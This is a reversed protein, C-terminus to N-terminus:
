DTGLTISVTDQIMVQHPPHQTRLECWAHRRLSNTCHLPDRHIGVCQPPQWDESAALYLPGQAKPSDASLTTWVQTWPISLAPHRYKHVVPTLTTSAQTKQQAATPTISAWTRLWVAGPMCIGLHKLCNCLTHHISVADNLVSHPSVQTGLAQVHSCHIETNESLPTHTTTAM